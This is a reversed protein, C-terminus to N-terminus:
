PVVALPVTLTGGVSRAAIQLARELNTDYALTNWHSSYERRVEFQGNYHVILVYNSEM